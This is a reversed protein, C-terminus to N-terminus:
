EWLRKGNIKNINKNEDNELEGDYEGMLYALFQESQNKIQNIVKESNKKNVQSIKEISIGKRQGM